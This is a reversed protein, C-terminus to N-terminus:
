GSSCYVGLRNKQLKKEEDSLWGAKEPYSPM